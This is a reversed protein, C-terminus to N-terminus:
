INDSIDDLQLVWSTMLFTVLSRKMLRAKSGFMKWKALLGTCSLLRTRVRLIADKSSVVPRALFGLATAVIM